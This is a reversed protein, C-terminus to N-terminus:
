FSGNLPLLRRTMALAFIMLANMAISSSTLTTWIKSIPINNPLFIFGAIGIGLKSVNM